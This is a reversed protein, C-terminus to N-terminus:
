LDTSHLLQCVTSELERTLIKQAKGLNSGSKLRMRQNRKKNQASDKHLHYAFDQVAYRKSFM